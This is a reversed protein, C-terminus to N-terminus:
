VTKQLWQTMSSKFRDKAQLIALVSKKKFYTRCSALTPQIGKIIFDNRKMCICWSMVINHICTIVLPVFHYSILSGPTM